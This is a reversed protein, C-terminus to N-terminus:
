KSPCPLSSDRGYFFRYDNRECTCLATTTATVCPRPWEGQGREVGCICVECVCQVVSRNLKNARKLTLARSENAFTARMKDNTHLEMPPPM